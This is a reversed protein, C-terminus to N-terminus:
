SRRLIHPAVPPAVVPSSGVPPAVVPVGPNVEEAILYVAKHQSEFYTRVQLEALLGMGILQVGVVFLMVALLLLPNRHAYVTPSMFKEILTVVGSLFGGAIFITGWYGFLYMPMTFNM